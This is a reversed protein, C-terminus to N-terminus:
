ETYQNSSIIQSTSNNTQHYTQNNNFHLEEITLCLLEGNRSTNNNGNNNQLNNESCSLEVSSYPSMESPNYMRANSSNYIQETKDQTYSEPDITSEYIKHCVALEIEESIYLKSLTQRDGIERMGENSNSSIRLREPISFTYEM